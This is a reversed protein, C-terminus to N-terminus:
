HMKAFYINFKSILWVSHFIKRFKNHNKETPSHPPPKNCHWHRLLSTAKPFSSSCQWVQHKDLIIFSLLMFPRKPLFMFINISSWNLAREISVFGCCREFFLATLTIFVFTDFTNWEGTFKLLVCKEKYCKNMARLEIRFCHESTTRNITLVFIQHCNKGCM